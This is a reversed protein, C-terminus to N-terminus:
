AGERKAEAVFRRMADVTEQLNEWRLQLAGPNAVLRLSVEATRKIVVLGNAKLTGGTQVVDFICDALGLAPALEVSGNLYLIRIQVGWSAFTRRATKHYKSAVRLGMLGSAHGEFREALASPGAIAMYCRGWGTDLLEALEVDSEDTVDNGVLGLEAVGQSVLTPIDSPKGLLYRYGGEDIVLNRGANRLREVPLGAGELIEACADLSRGTPLAFVPM